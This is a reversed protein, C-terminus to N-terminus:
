RRSKTWRKPTTSEIVNSILCPRYISQYISLYSVSLWVSLCIPPYVSLNTSLCIPPYLDFADIRPWPHSPLPQKPIQATVTVITNIVWSSFKPFSNLCTDVLQSISHIHLSSIVPESNKGRLHFDDKKSILERFAIKNPRFKTWKITKIRGVITCLSPSFLKLSSGKISCPPVVMLQRKDYSSVKSLM